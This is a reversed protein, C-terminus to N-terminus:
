ASRRRSEIWAGVDALLRGAENTLFLLAEKALRERLAADAMGREEVLIEREREM